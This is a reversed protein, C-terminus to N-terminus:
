QVFLHLSQLVNFANYFSLFLSDIKVIVKKISELEKTTFKKLLFCNRAAGDNNMINNVYFFCSFISLVKNAFHTSYLM